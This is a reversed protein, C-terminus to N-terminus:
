ASFKRRLVFTPVALLGFGFNLLGWSHFLPSALVITTNGRFPIAGFYSVTPDLRDPEERKAGKPLGTTGSTFIIVQGSRAPKGPATTPQGKSLSSISPLDSDYSDAWGIGLRDRGEM